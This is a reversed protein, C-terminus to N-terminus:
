RAGESPAITFMEVSIAGYEFCCNRGNQGRKGAQAHHRPLRGMQHREDVYQVRATAAYQIFADVPLLPVALPATLVGLVLKAVVMAPRLWKWRRLDTVEELMVAGAGLLM